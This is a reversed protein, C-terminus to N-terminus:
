LCTLGQIGSFFGWLVLVFFVSLFVESVVGRKEYADTGIKCVFALHRM